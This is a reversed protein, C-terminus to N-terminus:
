YTFRVRRWDRVVVVVVVVVIDTERKKAPGRAFIRTLRERRATL